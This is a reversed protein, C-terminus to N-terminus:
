ELEVPLLVAAAEARPRPALAESLARQVPLVHLHTSASRGGVACCAERPWQSYVICGTDYVAATHVLSYKCMCVHMSAVIHTHRRLLWMPVCQIPAVLPPEAVVPLALTPAPPPGSPPVRTAAHRQATLAGNPFNVNLDAQFAPRASAPLPGPGQDGAHTAQQVPLGASEYRVPHVRM